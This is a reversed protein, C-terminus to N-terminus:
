FPEAHVLNGFALRFIREGEPLSAHWLAICHIDNSLRMLKPLIQSFHICLVCAARPHLTFARSNTRVPSNLQQCDVKSTAVYKDIYAVGQSSKDCSFNEANSSRGNLRTVQHHTQTHTNCPRMGRVLSRSFFYVHMGLRARALPWWLM